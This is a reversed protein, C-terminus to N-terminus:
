SRAVEYLISALKPGNIQISFLAQVRARGALALQRRLTADRSLRLLAELWEQETAALLGTEGHVVVEKAAGVPSAVVPLGVAMYQVAKFGCRGRSRETDHLPMLGVDFGHLFEADRDLEWPEFELLVGEWALPCTSVIRLAARGNLERMAMRLVAQISQIDGLNEPSGIWGFIVQERQTSSKMPYRQLDVASPVIHVTSTFRRVYQALYGSGAVVAKAKQFVHHLRQTQVEYLHRVREEHALIDPPAWLADDFDFVLRPNTHALLNVFQERVVLKQLVVVDAWRALWLAKSAYSLRTRWSLHNPFPLIRCQWGNQRLYPLYDYIRVRSSARTRDYRTLFAVKLSQPGRM